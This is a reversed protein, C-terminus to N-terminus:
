LGRQDSEETEALGDDVLQLDERYQKTRYASRAMMQSATTATVLQMGAVLTLMMWAGNDRLILGLGICVVVIGFSQPKAAAHLRNLADPLRILGIAAVLGFAAGLAILVGGAINMWTEPTM